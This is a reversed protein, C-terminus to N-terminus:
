QLLLIKGLFWLYLCMPIIDAKNVHRVQRVSYGARALAAVCDM